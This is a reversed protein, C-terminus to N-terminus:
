SALEMTDDEPPPSTDDEARRVFLEGYFTEQFIEVEGRADLFLLAIFVAIRDAGQESTLASLSITEQNVLVRELIRHLHLITDEIFEEHALEEIDDSTFQSFDAMRRQNATEVKERLSRKKELEEYKRLERILDDLTVPRIRPQKTSTRRKIVSELSSFMPNKPIDIVKLESYDPPPEGFDDWEADELNNLFDIGALQDSKMRLLIALYLLTKGTRRLDSERSEAVAQLYQDAVKVIDVNWPDIQGTQAMKVLLEIGDNPLGEPSSEPPQQLPPNQM